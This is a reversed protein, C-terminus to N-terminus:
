SCSRELGPERKANAMDHRALDYAGDLTVRPLKITRQDLHSDSQNEVCYKLGSFELSQVLDYM